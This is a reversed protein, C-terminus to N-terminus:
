QIQRWSQRGRQLGTSEMIQFMGGTSGSAYKGERGDDMTIIGPQKIIGVDSKRGSVPVRVVLDGIISIEVFDEVNFEGDRNLDFPTMDLRGGSLADLEMLWSDGGAVCPDDSPILTTFIIRGARLIPNSVQREGSTPLDLYWGDQSDQVIERTVVRIGEEYTEEGNVFTVSEEYVIAQERLNSRGEQPRLPVATEKDNRDKIGYFTNLQGGPENDGVAFYRGTGFYVYYGEPPNIGVEPRATIPQGNSGNCSAADCATYLPEPSGPSGFAIKWNSPNASTLDFKWLNGKLDGAYVYDTIRDGDVDVPTPSSLGNDGDVLTDFKRILAGTHLDLVLLVARSANGARSNYGNAVIAAWKGNALRAVTPQPVTIGLDADDASTFEWMVNGTGFADPNTVDLAYIGKGGGGLSGLLVTKWSGLFADQVRPGGDNILRHNENFSEDAYFRLKDYVANPVYALIENGDNADFGHLMGDNAAVYVMKRRTRNGQMFAKYGAGEAGPLADFGYDQASVYAPDSNIIDGLISSRTRFLSGEQSQEGRVYDLRAQGNGDTWNLTAQQGATLSSWQFTIGTKSDPNYSYINRVGAEPILEAADWAKEGISGDGLIPYAWFHGSWDEPLFRAQYIKTEAELRTSSTAVSAASGEKISIDRFAAQLAATLEARNNATYYQGGGYAAADELMQNATAFGVTYTVLKQQRFPLADFSRGADDLGGVRLDIDAGFKALDDLYLTYGEDAQSGSPRFGDSYQPFNPYNASTTAPALGDWNPLRRTEGDVYASDASPFDNDYTPFGDTIVIVYNSQCRYRIPSVYRSGTDFYRTEGRFYRTVEYFTEALPTWTEAALKDIEARMTAANDYACSANIRGGQNNNFSALGFRFDDNDSVIDKAAAKAVEMRTEQPILAANRLNTNNAYTNFLYNLYNGTYRTAGGRPNPLLLCKTVGSRQGRKRSNSCNNESISSYQINGDNATFGWSPYTQAPDYGDAWVMNDMSGSNDVMLMVNPTVGASVFLPLQSVEVAGAGQVLTLLLAVMTAAFKNLIRKM